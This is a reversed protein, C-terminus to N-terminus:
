ISDRRVIRLGAMSFIIMGGWLMAAYSGFFIYFDVVMRAPSQFKQLRFVSALFFNLQQLIAPAILLSSVLLWVRYKTLSAEDNLALHLVAVTLPALSLLIMLRILIAFVLEAQNLFIRGDFVFLRTLAITLAALTTGVLLYRISIQKSHDIPRGGDMALGDSIEMMWQRTHGYFWFAGFGLIYILLAFPLAVLLYPSSSGDSALLEGFGLAFIWGVTAFAGGPLRYKLSCNLLAGLSVCTVLIVGAWASWVPYFFREYGKLMPEISLHLNPICFNILVAYLYLLIALWHFSGLGQHNM